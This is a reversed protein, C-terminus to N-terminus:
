GSPPSPSAGRRPRSALRLVPPGALRGATPGREGRKQYSYRDGGVRWRGGLRWTGPPEVRSGGPKRWSEMPRSLEGAPPDFGPDRRSRSISHCTSLGTWRCLSVCSPCRLPPPQLPVSPRSLPPATPPPVAGDHPVSRRDRHATAAALPPQPACRVSRDPACLAGSRDIYFM